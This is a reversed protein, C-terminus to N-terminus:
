PELYAPTLSFWEDVCRAMYGLRLTDDIVKGPWTPGDPQNALLIREAVAAFAVTLREWVAAGQPFASSFFWADDDLAISALSILCDGPQEEPMEFHLPEQSAMRLAYGRMVTFTLVSRAADSIILDADEDYDGMADLFEVVKDAVPTSPAGVEHLHEDAREHLKLAVRNTRGLM